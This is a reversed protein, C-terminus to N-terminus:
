SLDVDLISVFRVEDIETYELVGYRGDKLALVGVREEPYAKPVVKSGIELSVTWLILTFFCFPSLSSITLASDSSFQIRWKSSFTTWVTHRLGNLELSYYFDTPLLM